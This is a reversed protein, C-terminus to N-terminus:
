LLIFLFHSGTFSIMAILPFICFNKEQNEQYKKDKYLIKTWFVVDTRYPHTDGYPNM